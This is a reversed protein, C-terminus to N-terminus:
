QQMTLQVIPMSAVGQCDRCNYCAAEQWQRVGSRPMSLCERKVSRVSSVKMVVTRVAVGHWDSRVVAALAVCGVEDEAREVGSTEEKV